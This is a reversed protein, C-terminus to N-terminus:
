YNIKYDGDAYITVLLEDNNPYEYSYDKGHVGKKWTGKMNMQTTLADIEAVDTTDEISLAYAFRMTNSNGRLEAWQISTVAALTTASMGHMIAEEVIPSVEIWKMGNHTHWKLGGDFSTIVRIRGHELENVTLKIYDIHEISRINIDKTPLVLQNHPIASLKVIPVHNEDSVWTVIGINNVEGLLPLKTTPISDMGHEQFQGVTPTTTSVVEWEEISYMKFENVDFYNVIANAETVNIRYMKYLSPEKIIYEKDSLVKSWTQNIQTDLIVWDLGNSSGEFTWNKPMNKLYSSSGVSRLLYKGILVNGGFEYGLYGVGNSSMGSAFGENDDLQNFAKWPDFSSSYSSSSFARGLPTTNSTMKPIVTDSSYKFNGNNGVFGKYKGDHYILSKKQISKLSEIELVPRFVNTASYGGSVVTSLFGDIGGRGRCTRASNMNGVTSTWHLPELSSSDTAKIGINWFSKDGAAIMGNLNSNVIYKDWENDKDTNSIGGTLLRVQLSYESNDKSLTDFGNPIPLHMDKKATIVTVRSTNPASSTGGGFIYIQKTFINKLNSVAVGQHDGNISFSVTGNDIDLLMGVIDTNLIARCYSSSEIAGGEITGDKTLYFVNKNTSHGAGFNIGEQAIGIRSYGLEMKFEIYWKGSQKLSNLIRIGNGGTVTTSNNTLSLTGLSSDFLVPEFDVNRGVVIGDANLTDWSISHQINRDAILRKKGNWDEVMIFYFDGNPTASSSVPMFDSTEEGLGSFVGVQNATAQYHCRIRKGVELSRINIVEDKHLMQGTDDIDIADMRVNYTDVNPATSTVIVEVKHVGFDLNGKIFSVNQAQTKDFCMLVGENKGDIKVQIDKSYSASSYTILAVRSGLFYFEMNATVNKKAGMSRKNYDLSNNTYNGWKGEEYEIHPHNDDYRKWGAEPATLSDGINSTSLYGNSDIDIADLNLGASAGEKVRVKVEHKGHPLGIAEAMLVQSNGNGTMSFESIVIDDIVLEAQATYSRDGKRAIIRIKTGVFNLQITSNNSISYAYAGNYAPAHVWDLNVWTGNYKIGSNINDIRRWGSEPTVLVEGVVTM